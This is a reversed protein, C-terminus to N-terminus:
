VREQLANRAMLKSNKWKLAGSHAVARSWIAVSSVEPPLQEGVARFLPYNFVAELKKTVEPKMAREEFLVQTAV